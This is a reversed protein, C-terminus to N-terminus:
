SLVLKPAVGTVDIPNTMTGCSHPDRTQYVTYPAAPGGETSGGGTSVGGTSMPGAQGKVAVEVAVKVWQGNHETIEQVLDAGKCTYAYGTATSRNLLQHCGIFVALVLIVLVPVFRMPERAHAEKNLQEIRVALEGV